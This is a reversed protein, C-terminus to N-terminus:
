SVANRQAFILLMNLPVEDNAIVVVLRRKIQWPGGNVLQDLNLVTRELPIVRKAALRPFFARDAQTLNTGIPFMREQMTRCFALNVQM